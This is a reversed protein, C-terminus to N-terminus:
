GAGKAIRILRYISSNSSLGYMERLKAVNTEKGSFYLGLIEAVQEHSLRINPHKGFNNRNTAFAVNTKIDIWKCTEPSYIHPYIGKEKCLIDKDISLGAKWGNEIAWKIFEKPNNKWENCVTVGQEGYWKYNSSNSNYCRDMMGRYARYAPHTDNAKRFGHKTKRALEVCGCSPLEPDQKKKTQYSITNARAIHEKGCKCLYKWYAQKNKVEMFEIAKLSGFQQNSIDKVRKSM